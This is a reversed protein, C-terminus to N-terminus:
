FGVFNATIGIKESPNFTIKAGRISNNIGLQRDEWSRLLLGSGFQEYFYGLTASWKEKTYSAYYTGINIPSDFNPSYNLLGQPAYSELQIGFSFDSVGYDLKIYNNSRFRDEENFKGVLIGHDTYEDDIYYQSNSEIGISFGQNNQALLSTAFTLALLFQFTRFTM